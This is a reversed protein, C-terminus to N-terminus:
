VGLSISSSYCQSHEPLDTLSLVDLAKYFMCHRYFTNMGKPMSEIKNGQLRANLIFLKCLVVVM